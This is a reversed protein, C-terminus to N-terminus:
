SQQGPIGPIDKKREPVIEKRMFANWARDNQLRPDGLKLREFTAGDYKEEIPLQKWEALSLPTPTTPPAPLAASGGCGLALSILMLGVWISCQRM